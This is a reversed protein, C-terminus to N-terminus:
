VRSVQLSRDSERFCKSCFFSTEPAGFFSCGRARCATGGKALGPLQVKMGPDRHAPPPPSETSDVESLVPPPESYSVGKRRTPATPAGQFSQPPQQQHGQHLHEQQTRAANRQDSGPKPATPPLPATSMRASTAGPLPVSVATVPPVRVSSKASQSSSTSVSRAVPPLTAAAEGLEAAAATRNNDRFFTSNALYITRDTNRVTLQKQTPMRQLTEYSASDPNVYFKSRGSGYLAESSNAALQSSASSPRM